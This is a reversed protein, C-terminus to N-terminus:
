QCGTFSLTPAQTPQGPTVSVAATTQVHNACDLTGGSQPVFAQAEVTYSAAGAAGASYSTGSASFAGVTPNVRSSVVYVNRM